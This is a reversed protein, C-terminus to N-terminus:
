VPLDNNLSGGSPIATEGEEVEPDYEFLRGTDVEYKTHCVGTQGYLRDKLLRIRSKNKEDGPLHKNREFGLIVQSYRMLARSGTFQVEKVEAGDEHSKGGSPANLHSFVFITFNLENTMKQLDSAIKGIETNIESPSLHATLCTINDLFIYNCGETVVWYRIIQKINEWNNQGYNRYMFMSGALEMAHERLISPDYEVDPRHFPINAKKAAVNKLTMGVTEELMIMGVKQQEEHILHAAIEHALLTKGLSVGAGVSIIEGQRLGYTLKTLEPWPYSLGWEPKSLAEDLCEMVGCAYDPTEVKSEFVLAQQLERFRKAMLMDNADKLPLRAIKAKPYISRIVAAAADGEDDADMCVVLEEFGEVFERNRGLAHAASKAGDPLAVCAPHMHSYKSPTCIRIAQYASMASLEDEFLYLRKKYIGSSQAQNIGFLDSEKGRGISYFYKPELNRVKYGQILGGKTKPYLHGIITEGDEGSLCVRVDYREAVERSIGRTELAEIPCEEAEALIEAVEEDSLERSENFKVGSTDAQYYGCRNCSGWREEGKQFLILHNGTRDGGRSRCEPCPADGIIEKKVNDTM